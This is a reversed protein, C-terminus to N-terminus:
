TIRSFIRKSISNPRAGTDEEETTNTSGGEFVDLVYDSISYALLAVILGVVAYLITNKAASVASAEGASTVYRFGGYVIMVIAVAGVLLLFANVITELASDASPSSEGGIASVGEKVQSAQAFATDGPVVSVVGVLLALAVLAKIGKKVM